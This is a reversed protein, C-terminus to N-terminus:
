SNAKFAPDPEVMADLIAMAAIAALRWETPKGGLAPMIIVPDVVAPNTLSRALLGDIVSSTTATLVKIDFGDKMRMGLVPLAARYLESMRDVFHAESDILAALIRQQDRNGLTPLAAALATSLRWRLSRSTDEFNRTATQRIMELLVGRRGEPTDLHDANDDLVQRAVCLTEGFYTARDSPVLMREMLDVYFAEKNAWTRYVSSRPVEALRILEEMNLHALSVTVGGSETLMELATNLIRERLEAESMRHRKRGDANAWARAQRSNVHRPPM